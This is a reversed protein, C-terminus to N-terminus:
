HAAHLDPLTVRRIAYAVNVGDPGNVTGGRFHVLEGTDADLTM